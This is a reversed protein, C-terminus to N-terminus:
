GGHLFSVVVGNAAQQKRPAPAHKGADAAAEAERLLARFSDAFEPYDYKRPQYHKVVFAQRPCAARTLISVLLSAVVHHNRCAIGAVEVWSVSKGAPKVHPEPEPLLPTCDPM